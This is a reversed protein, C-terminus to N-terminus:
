NWGPNNENINKNTLVEDQPLPFLLHKSERAKKVDCEDLGGINNMVDLYIGWRILDWRRDGEFAFEKAREELIASRLGVKTTIASQGTTAIDTANSRERVRNVADIAATSLNGDQSEKENMAEAYILLIDAFRLFPWFADSKDALADSVDNYKNTFALSYSSTEWLYSVGDNYPAVPEKIIKGTVPDKVGQAMETYETTNPYYYGNNGKEQFSMRYRHQIGNVIRYDDHEFMKYWHDREGIWMGTIIFGASNPVGCYWSRIGNGYSEDGSIAQLMFMHETKNLNARTWLQDFPLLDFTGVEGDIVKKAWIAASDYCDAPTFASYGAVQQKSYEKEIPMTYVKNGDADLTYPIGGKVMIKEGAPLAGSGMTAYVKALLGAAAGCSVHGSVFKTDTNKYLGTQPDAAIKLLRIIEAYVESVPRRPQNYDAGLSIATDFLPIEGYARVLLFYMHAKLFYCEAIGNLKAREPAVTMAEIYHAAVNARNILHYGGNWLANTVDDAQFNGAGVASMAWDPGSTYDCDIELVRPFQNWKFMDNCWKSYVGTTWQAIADESDGVQDPGIFNKPNEELLKNCSTFSLGCMAMLFLGIYLIKNKM